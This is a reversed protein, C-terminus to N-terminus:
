VSGANGLKLGPVDVRGLGGTGSVMGSVVTKGNGGLTLTQGNLAVAGTVDLETPFPYYYYNDTVYDYNYVPGGSPGVSSGVTVAAGLKLPLAVTNGSGSSTLDGQLTVRNGSLTYGSGTVLIQGFATDSAFNNSNSLRAAGDPFFLLDGATPVVGGWNAATMWNSDVSSGGTWVDAAIRTLTVDNGDGGHYSVRFIVNGIPLLSGEPLNNFAGSVADDAGTGDNDILTFVKNVAPAYGLSVQLTAYSVDVTGTAQLQDYGAVGAADGNLQFALTDGPLTLSGTHLM